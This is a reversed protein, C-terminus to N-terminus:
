LGDEPRQVYWRDDVVAGESDLIVTPIDLARFVTELDPM